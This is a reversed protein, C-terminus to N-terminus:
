LLYHNGTALLGNCYRLTGVKDPLVALLLFFLLVLLLWIRTNSTLYLLM